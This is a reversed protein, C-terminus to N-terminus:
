LRASAVSDQLPGTDSPPRAGRVVISMRRPGCIAFRVREVIRRSIANATPFFGRGTMVSECYRGVDIGERRICWGLALHYWHGCAEQVVERIRERGHGLHGPVAIFFVIRAFRQVVRAALAHIVGIADHPMQGFAAAKVTRDAM